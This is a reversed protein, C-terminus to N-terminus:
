RTWHAPREKRYRAIFPVTAGETLLEEVARVQQEAIGLEKAILTCHAAPM